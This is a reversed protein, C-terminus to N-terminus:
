DALITENKLEIKANSRLLSLFGRFMQQLGEPDSLAMAGATDGHYGGRVSALVQRSSRGAALQYQIAMKVACEVAVSGSDAFFVQEMGAPTSELLLRALRVAPEHTFGAFMVQAFKELQANIAEVIRPHNHGHCMCWWSSLADILETGVALTSRTGRAAAGPHVPPPNITSAYPHWLHARDFALLQATDM